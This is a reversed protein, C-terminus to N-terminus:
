LGGYRKVRWLDFLPQHNVERETTGTGMIWNM